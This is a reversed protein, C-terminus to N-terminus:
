RTDEEVPEPVSVGRRQLVRDVLWGVGLAVVVAVVVAWLPRDKMWAGAVAGVGVTYVAWTSVAVADFIMFRQRPFEMAGASLNVAQRGGPVYRCAVIIMGGRQELQNGAWTFFSSVKRRRSHRLRGLRSFRGITYATNDGVFAGVAAVLMLLAVNPHSTASAVAAVAVLVPEAPTPPFLGDVICLGFVIPFVWLSDANAEIFANLAEFM